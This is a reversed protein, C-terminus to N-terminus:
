GRRSQEGAPTEFNQYQFAIPLGTAVTDGPTSADWYVPALSGESEIAPDLINTAEAGFPRQVTKELLEARRISNGPFADFM